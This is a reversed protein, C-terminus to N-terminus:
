AEAFRKLFFNYVDPDFGYRGYGGRGPKWESTKILNKNKLRGIVTKITNAPLKTALAIENTSIPQTIFVSNIEQAQLNMLFRFVVRQAGYLDRLCKEMDLITNEQKGADLPVPLFVMSDPLKKGSVQTEAFKPSDNIDEDRNLEKERKESSPLSIEDDWPRYAKKQFKKKHETEKLIDKILPM